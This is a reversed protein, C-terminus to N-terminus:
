RSSTEHVPSREASNDTRPAQKETEQGAPVPTARNRSTPRPMESLLQQLRARKMQWRKQLKYIVGVTNDVWRFCRQRLDQRLEREAAFDAPFLDVLEPSVEMDFVLHIRDQDGANVLRHPFSNDLFYLGGAQWHCDEHGVQLQVGPNTRIPIHFRAIRRDLGFLFGDHHWYIKRGAELRMLRVRHCNGPLISLISEIYPAHDMAPTKKYEAGDGKIVGVSRHDTADGNPGVLTIAGWGNALYSRYHPVVEHHEQVAALDSQLRGVDFTEAFRHTLHIGANRTIVQWPYWHGFAM